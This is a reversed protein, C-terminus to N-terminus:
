CGCAAFEETYRVVGRLLASEGFRFRCRDIENNSARSPRIARRDIEVPGFEQVKSRAKALPLSEATIYAGAKLRRPGFSLEAEEV